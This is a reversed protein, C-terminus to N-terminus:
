NLLYLSDEFEELLGKLEPSEKDIIQKLVKPDVTGIVDKLNTKESQNNDDAFLRDGLKKSKKNDVSRDSSDSDEDDDDESDGGM